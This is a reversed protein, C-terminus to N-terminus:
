EFYIDDLYITQVGKKGESTFVVMFGGNIETLNYEKLKYSYKKWEKSLMLGGLNASDSDPFLGSVGGVKIFDIIEGGKDGRATFHLKKHKSLDYSNKTEGWNQKWDYLWYIGAWGQANETNYMIRICQKGSAVKMFIRQTYQLSSTDGMWGKPCFHNERSGDDKYVYFRESKKAYAFSVMMCFICLLVFIKKM